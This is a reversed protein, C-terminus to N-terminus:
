EGKLNGDIIKINKINNEFNDIAKYAVANSDYIYARTEDNNNVVYIVNELIKEEGNIPPLTDVQRIVKTDINIANDTKTIDLTFDNNTINGVPSTPLISPDLMGNSNTMVLISNGKTNATDLMNKYKNSFIPRADLEAIKDNLDNIMSDIQSKTYYDDLSGGSGNFPLLIGFSLEHNLTSNNVQPIGKSAESNINGTFDFDSFVVLVIDNENVKIDGFFYCSLKYESQGKELPFPKVMAIGFGTNTNYEQSIRDFYALTSVHTEKKCIKKLMNFLDLFSNSNSIRDITQNTM